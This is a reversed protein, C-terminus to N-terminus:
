RNVIIYLEPPNCMYIYIGYVLMQTCKRQNLDINTLTWRPTWRPTCSRRELRLTKPPKKARLSYPIRDSSSKPCHVTESTAGCQPLLGYLLSNLPPPSAPLSPPPPYNVTRTPQLQLPSLSHHSRSPGYIERYNITNSVRGPSPALLPGASGWTGRPRRRWEREQRPRRRSCPCLVPGKM